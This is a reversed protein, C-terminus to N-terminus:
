FCPIGYQEKAEQARRTMDQGTIRRKGDPFMNGYGGSFFFILLITGAPRCTRNGEKKQRLITPNGMSDASAPKKRVPYRSHPTDHIVARQENRIKVSCQHPVIFPKRIIRDQGDVLKDAPPEGKGVRRGPGDFAGPRDGSLETQGKRHDRPVSADQRVVIGAPVQFFRYERFIFGIQEPRQKRLKGAAPKDGTKEAILHDFGKHGAFM